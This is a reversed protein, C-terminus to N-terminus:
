RVSDGNKTGFAFFRAGKEYQTVLKLNKRMCDLCLAVGVEKHGPVKSATLYDIIDWITGINAESVRAAIGTIVIYSVSLSDMTVKRKRTVPKGTKEAKKIISSDDDDDDDDKSKKDDDEPDVITEEIEKVVREGMKPFEYRRPTHWDAIISDIDPLGHRLGCFVTFETAVPVGVRGGIFHRRLAEDDVSHIIQSVSEWSRPTAFARDDRSPDFMFLHRGANFRHYAIVNENVGKQYAWNLWDEYSFVVQFHTFRNALAASMEYVGSRDEIRNGAAIVVWGKPLEHDGLMRDLILQYAPAQVDMPANPLEDLFVIGHEGHKDVRPLLDPRSWEAYASGKSMEGLLSTMRARVQTVVPDAEMSADLTNIVHDDNTVGTMCNGGFGHEKHHKLFQALDDFIVRPSTVRPIGRIEVPEYQSLRRDMFGFSDLGEKGRIYEVASAVAQSKGIGPEGWLMIPMRMKWAYYVAERIQGTTIVPVNNLSM